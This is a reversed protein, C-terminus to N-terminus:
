HTTMAASQPQELPLRVPVKVLLLVAESQQLHLRGLVPMQESSQAPLALRSLLIVVLLAALAKLTQARAM